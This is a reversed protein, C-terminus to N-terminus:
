YLAGHADAVYRAFYMRYALLSEDDGLGAASVASGRGKRKHGLLCFRPSCLRAESKAGCGATAVSRESRPSLALRTSTKGFPRNANASRMSITNGLSPNLTSTAIGSKDHKM